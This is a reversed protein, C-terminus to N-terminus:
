WAPDFTADSADFTTPDAHKTKRRDDNEDDDDDDRNSDRSDHVVRRRGIGSQRGTGAAVTM